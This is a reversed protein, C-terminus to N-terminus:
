AQGGQVTARRARLQAIVIAVAQPDLRLEGARYREWDRTVAGSPAFRFPLRADDPDVDLCIHGLVILAAAIEIPAIRFPGTHLGGTRRVKADTDPVRERTLTAMPPMPRTELLVSM